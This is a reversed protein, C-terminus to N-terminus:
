FLYGVSLQVGYRRLGGQSMIKKIEEQYSLNLVYRNRVVAKVGGVAGYTWHRCAQIAVAYEPIDPNNGPFNYAFGDMPDWKDQKNVVTNGEWYSIGVTSKGASFNYSGYIGVYPVVNLGDNIRFTYGIKVPISLSNLKITTDPFRQMRLNMDSQTQSWSLGSMWVWSKSTTYEVTGGLQFGM